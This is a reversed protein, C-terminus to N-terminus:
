PKYLNISRGESVYYGASVVWNWHSSPAVPVEPKEREDEPARLKSPLELKMAQAVPSSLPSLM